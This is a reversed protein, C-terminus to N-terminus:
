DNTKNTETSEDEASGNKIQMQKLTIKTSKLLANQRADFNELFLQRARSENGYDRMEFTMDMEVTFGNEILLKELLFMMHSKGTGVKGAITINLEKNM